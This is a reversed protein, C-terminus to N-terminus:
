PLCSNDTMNYIGIAAQVGSSIVVCFWHCGACWLQHCCLVWHCGACWLQHCYLVLPLRCVLASSLVSGIAAQVGSSIIVCFGIAAQVGSSIVVCFVIAAQVGSSIVVCFWHCGACWLQHCCLVWHCGACWLQHCCLVWHLRCVLASSLVSGIAAQVGSSIVVCFWHCSACWLQDCCLVLPLKCVLASSLVFGLPHWHCGACWLQHCCLVWHIGIAAQVGSSIVVCFWISALPLKCVLTSSLVSGM